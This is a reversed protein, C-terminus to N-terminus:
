LWNFQFSTINGTVSRRVWTKDLLRKVTIRAEGSQYWRSLADPVVNLKTNIYQARLLIEFKALYWTMERLCKLIFTDRTNGKNIAYMAIQSDTSIRVVKGALQKHWIKIAILITFMERHAINNTDHITETDFKFHFYEKGQIAGGGILSADTALLKDTYLTDQLWLISVGKFTPLFKFWWAIDLLLETGMERTGVEPCLTMERIMRALFIRGARICNAIFSLKGILSQLQKKKYVTKHKWEKLLSLLEYRRDASVELTRKKVDVTNGLFEMRHTPPVSKDEAEKAGVM